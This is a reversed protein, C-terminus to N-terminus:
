KKVDKKVPAAKVANVKAPAVKAPQKPAVVQKPKAEPSKPAAKPTVVKVEKVQPTEKVPAKAAPSPNEKPAETKVELAKIGKTIKKALKKAEKEIDIATALGQKVLLDTVAKLEKVLRVRITEKSKKITDKVPSQKKSKKM